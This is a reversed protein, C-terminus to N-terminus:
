EQTALGHIQPQQPRELNAELVARDLQAGALLPCHERHERQLRPRRDGGIPQGLAQPAFPRRRGRLLHDLEVDRMQAARQIAVAGPDNRAPAAILQLESVAFDVRDRKSRSISSDRRAVRQRQPPAFWERVEGVLRERGGLDAPQLLQPQARGLERDVGVELRTAVGLHDALEVPQDRSCGSRSRRCAWRM